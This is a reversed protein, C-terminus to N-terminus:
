SLLVIEELNTERYECFVKSAINTDFEAETWGGHDKTYHEKRDNKHVWYCYGGPKKIIYYLAIDDPIPIFYRPYRKM